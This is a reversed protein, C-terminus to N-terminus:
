AMPWRKWRPMMFQFSYPASSTGAQVPGENWQQPFGSQIVTKSAASFLFVAPGFVRFNTTAGSGVQGYQLLGPTLWQGYIIQADPGTTAIATIYWGKELTMPAPSRFDKHGATDAPLTGYDVILDGLSWSQGDAQGLEYIGARLLAGSLSSGRTQAVVGGILDTPRDVYFVSFYVRQAILTISNTAASVTSLNPPGIVETEGGTISLGTVLREPEVGNPFVVSSTEHKCIMADRFEIGDDSTRLHLDNNGTLGIEGHGKFASQFILSSAKHATSKNIKLQHSGTEDTFLSADSRVAFRNEADPSTNIGLETSAALETVPRWSADRYVLLMNESILWIRWGEAPTHYKWIGNQFIALAHIHTAWEQQATSPVIHCDGEQPTPPPTITDRTQATAQVIADLQQLAENHSVHKQAQNPAIFPLNLRPSNM